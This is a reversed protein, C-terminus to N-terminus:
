NQAKTAKKDLQKGVLSFIDNTSRITPIAEEPIPIRFFKGCASSLELSKMSDIGLDTYLNADDRIEKLELEGIEAIIKRIENKMEETLQM